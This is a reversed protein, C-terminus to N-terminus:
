GREVAERQGTLLAVAPRLAVDALHTVNISGEGHVPLNGESRLQEWEGYVRHAAVPLDSGAGDPDVLTEWLTSKMRELADDAYDPHLNVTAARAVQVPLAVALITPVHMADIVTEDDRVKVVRRVVDAAAEYPADAHVPMSTRNEGNPM